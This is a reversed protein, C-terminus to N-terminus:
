LPLIFSLNLFNSGHLGAEKRFVKLDPDCSIIDQNPTFNSFELNLSKEINASQAMISLTLTFFLYLLKSGGLEAEM